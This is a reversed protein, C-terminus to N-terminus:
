LHPVVGGNGAGLIGSTGEDADTIGISVLSSAVLIILASGSASVVRISDILEASESVSSHGAGVSIDWGPPSLVGDWSDVELSGGGGRDPAM